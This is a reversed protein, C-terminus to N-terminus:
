AHPIEFPGEITTKPKGARRWAEFLALGIIVIGIINSAGGLFPFILMTGAFPVPNITVNNKKLAALIPPVYTSIIAIYTILVAIIRYKLGGRYDSGVMVARGVMYGVLISILGLEYGTFKLVAFYVLAGAIGAGIGFLISKIIDGASSSRALSVRVGETCDPCMSQMNVSFYSGKLPQNCMGCTAPSAEKDFEAKDFQLNQGTENESM